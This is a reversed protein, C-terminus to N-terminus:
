VYRAKVENKLAVIIDQNKKDLAKISAINSTWLVALADKSTVSRLEEQIHNMFWTM